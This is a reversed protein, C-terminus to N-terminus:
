RALAHMEAAARLGIRDRGAGVAHQLSAHEGAFHIRGEASPRVVNAQRFTRM